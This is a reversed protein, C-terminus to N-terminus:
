QKRELSLEIIKQCLSEYSYGAVKAAKPILSVPTLGPLTNVELCWVQGDGDVIFDSRSYVALGLTNHLKVAYESIKKKVDDPINAPCIEKAGRGGSQYKAVYDFNGYNAVIEIPCLAKDGLVPVTLERGVIMKEILVHNGFKLLRELANRLDEKNKVLEVGLSSGGNIVKVACPIDTQEVIAIIDEETYVFETWPANPIGATDMMRKAIVKNLAMASGLHGSGTYPVGLLDLTSQIKGDEGDEGHLGIFVCDAKQCVELVNKGLKSKSIYSRSAIVKNMDPVTETIVVDECFGNDVDFVDELRGNYNELGYFTDVFIAKHGINRLARCVSTATVLSVQRETSLGGGLVVIKM